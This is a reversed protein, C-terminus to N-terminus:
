FQRLLREIYDLEHQPRSRDAGRRRLEEQIARTRAEEMQDPVQVDGSEDAGSTGERLHRGLPDRREDARRDVQRGRGYGREGLRDGRQDSPGAQQSGPGSGQGEEDSEGMASGQGDQDGDQEGEGEGPRGFQHAMEQSMARGGKQLAEIARRAADAAEPDRGAGLAATAQRMALDAEALEPPIKGTLDGQQQMLEGLARRLAQQVEGDQNRQAEQRQLERADPPRPQSGRPAMYGRQPEPQGARSQANDLLAGEHRIMDQVANMQQQGRERQEIRAKQRETQRGQERRATNMEQLMRDLESMRERAEDMRGERAAERMQEAQREMDRADLRDRDPDFEQSGPDRRAQEALAELHRQLAEQVERMRQDLEARDVVEGRREAELMERVAERARELARATREVAGEELHLALQWMRAQADDVAAPATDRRLLTAIGRLNLYGGPDDQWVEDLTAMRDLELVAPGRAAPRLTLGKRVEMLARALPHEFRREPLQFDLTASTGELGPADRAVLRARVQVGAWPHATLDQVRAGKASKATGGPLQIPVVVAPAGPRDRLTLEARLSVVGYAHSVQWPLRTAPVRGRMAGPPEPFSVVPAINPVLKVDWGALESGQRTVSLRGSTTLTEDVQFSAADLAKFTMAQGGLALAPEGTGGTLNVTLRADEPVTAAGGEPKLFVPALGTYAPPTIWAQIQTAPPAAQASFVPVVGRLLRGPAHEGAIGFCAALAVVLGLRLARPDHRAMGPRPMGVRLRGVQAMARAVHARWLPESGPQSPQDTLVALPRHTLGSAVEMRRDAERAGPVGLRRFGRVLLALFAVGVVALLGAHAWGPLSRPLDLLAACVFLGALGLAPWLAPWAHEYWLALVALRRRRQVGRLLANLRDQPPPPASM